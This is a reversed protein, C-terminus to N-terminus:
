PATGTAMSRTCPNQPSPEDEHEWAKAGVALYPPAAAVGEQRRNGEEGAIWERAAESTMHQRGGARGAARRAEATPQSSAMRRGTRRATARTSTKLAGMLQDTPSGPTCPIGCHLEKPLFVRTGTLTPKTAAENMQATPNLGPTM